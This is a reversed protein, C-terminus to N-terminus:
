GAGSHRVQTDPHVSDRSRDIGETQVVTATVAIDDIIKLTSAVDDRYMNSVLQLGRLTASVTTKAQESKNSASIEGLRMVLNDRSHEPDTPFVVIPSKISIKFQMREVDPASQVAAQTAADYLGKLKALKVFFMYIGHLPGGLFQFKVSATNLTVLSKIGQYSADTPDFTQYQFDAFDEGEISLIQSYEQRVM